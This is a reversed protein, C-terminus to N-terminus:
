LPIEEESESERIRFKFDPHVQKVEELLYPLYDITQRGEKAKMEPQVLEVLEKLQESPCKKILSSAFLILSRTRRKRIKEREVMEEVKAKKMEVLSKLARVRAKESTFERCVREWLEPYKKILEEVKKNMENGRKGCNLKGTQLKAEQKDKNRTKNTRGGGLNTTIKQSLFPAVVSATADETAGGEPSTILLCVAFNM